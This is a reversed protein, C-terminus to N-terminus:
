WNCRYRWNEHVINRWVIDYNKNNTVLNNVHLLM